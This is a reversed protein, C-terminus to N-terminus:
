ARPEADKPTPAWLLGASFLLRENGLRSLAECVEPQGLLHRECSGGDLRLLMCPTEARVTATAPLGLMLAIEGFMDGEGLTRLPRESGDPLPHLVQCQGRLLLYLADVEQGQEVVLSGASRSCLQFDRALAERQAPTLTRFLPNVRLVDNLLRERQFSQLVEEVSPHRQLIRELRERTLELVATREFAKVTAFRPVESLLSMEGFFDGESLFAVTRRRGSKLTRVVEVSGEVIAFMSGGPQGEEVISEGPQFVRPELAELVSVFERQGLGSLLSARPPEQFVPRPVAPGTPGLPDMWRADLRALLRRTPEHEPDLRLIVKCLAIARLLWGQRVWAEALVEYGSLAEELTEETRGSSVLRVAGSEHQRSTDFM